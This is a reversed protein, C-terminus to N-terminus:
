CVLLMHLYGVLYFLLVIGATLAVLGLVMLVPGLVKNRISIYNKRKVSLAYNYVFRPAKPLMIIAVGLCYFIGWFIAGLITIGAGANMMAHIGTQVPCQAAWTTLLFSSVFGAIASIVVWIRHIM